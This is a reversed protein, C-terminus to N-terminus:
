RILTSLTGDAEFGVAEIELARRRFLVEEFQALVM